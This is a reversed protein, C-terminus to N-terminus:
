ILDRKRIYYLHDKRRKCILCIRAGSKPRIYLNDGSLPHDCSRPRKLRGKFSADLMNGKRTGAFLHDPNVCFTNDCSHCADQRARLKVGKSKLALRTAYQQRAGWWAVPYDNSCGRLWLWCGSNPEPISNEEIMELISQATM